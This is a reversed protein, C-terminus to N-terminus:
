EIDLEQDQYDEIIQAIKFEVRDFFQMEKAKSIFYFKDTDPNYKLITEIPNPHIVDEIVEQISIDCDSVLAKYKTNAIFDQVLEIAHEMCADEFHTPQTIM